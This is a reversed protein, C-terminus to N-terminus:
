PTHSSAASFIYDSLHVQSIYASGNDTKLRKPMGMYGFAHFLHNQFETFSEGSHASAVIMGSYTDISVHVFQLKNFSSYHTIDMQWLDNPLLGRPNIAFSPTNVYQPCLSCNKVIQRAQERTIHFQKRLSRANQHFLSHSKMAMGVSDKNAIVSYLHTYRDALDNGSSLPGPLGSHSENAWHYGRHCRPCLNQPKKTTQSTKKQPCQNKFHGLQGCLFCKQNIKMNPNKNQKLIQAHLKAPPIGKFAAALTVGQLYSPGIDACLRVYDELTGQNKWPGMHSLPKAGGEAWPTTRSVLSRTGWRAGQMSGAEGEAQTEAQIETNRM